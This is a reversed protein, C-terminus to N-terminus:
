FPAVERRVSGEKLGSFDDTLTKGTKSDLLNKFQRNYGCYGDAEDDNNCTHSDKRYSKCLTAFKCQM